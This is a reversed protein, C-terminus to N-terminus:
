GTPGSSPAGSTPAASALGGSPLAAGSSGLAADVSPHVVVALSRGGIAGLVRAAADTPVSVVVQVTTTPASLVGSARGSLEQVTRWLLTGGVQLTTEEWAPFPRGSFFVAAVAADEVTESKLYEALFATKELKKTTAAIKEATEAFTRM